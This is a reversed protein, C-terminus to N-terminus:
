LECKSIMKSIEDSWKKEFNQSLNALDELDKSLSKFKFVEKRPASIMLTESM